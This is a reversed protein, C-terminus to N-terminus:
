HSEQALQTRLENARLQSETGWSAKFPTTKMETRRPVPHVSAMVLSKQNRHWHLWTLPEPASPFASAEWIFYSPTKCVPHFGAVEPLIQLVFVMWGEGTSTLLLLLLLPYTCFSFLQIWHFSSTWSRGASHRACHLSPLSWCWFNPFNLFFYSFPPMSLSTISM